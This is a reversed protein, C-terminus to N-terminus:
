PTRGFDDQLPDQFNKKVGASECDVWHSFFLHSPLPNFSKLAMNGVSEIGDSGFSSFICLPESAVVATFNANFSFVLCGRGQICLFLKELRHSYFLSIGSTPVGSSTQDNLTNPLSDSRGCSGSGDRFDLLTALSHPGQGAIIHESYVVGSITLVMVRTDPIVLPTTNDYRRECTTRCAFTVDVIPDSPYSIFGNKAEGREATPVYANYIPSIADGALDFLRVSAQTVIALLSASSPLWMVGSITIAPSSLSPDAPGAGTSSKKTAITSSLPELDSLSISITQVIKVDLLSPPTLASLIIIQVHNLGYVAFTSAILPNVVVGVVPFSLPVQAVRQVDERSWFEANTSKSNTKKTPPLYFITVLKGEAVAFHNESLISVPMQLSKRCTRSRALGEAIQCPASVINFSNPFFHLSALGLSQIRGNNNAHHENAFALHVPLSSYRTTKAASQTTLSTDPREPAVSTTLRTLFSITNLVSEQQRCLPVFDSASRSFIDHLLSSTESTSGKSLCDWREVSESSSNQRTPLSTCLTQARANNASTASAIALLIQDLKELSLNDGSLGSLDVDAFFSTDKVERANNAKGDQPSSGAYQEPQDKLAGVTM